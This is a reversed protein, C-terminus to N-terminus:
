RPYGADAAFGEGPIQYENVRWVWVPKIQGFPGATGGKEPGSTGPRHGSCVIHIGRDHV